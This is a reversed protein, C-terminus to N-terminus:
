RSCVNPGQVRGDNTSALMFEDLLDEEGIEEFARFVESRRPPPQMLWPHVIEGFRRYRTGFEVFKEADRKSYRELERLTKDLEKWLFLHSGDDFLAFGQVDPAFMELGHQKLELERVIEDRFLGQVFACSSFTAGPILEESVCAGGVKYRAELVIVKCGARGLYNAAVLGNHGAGVIAVDYQESM